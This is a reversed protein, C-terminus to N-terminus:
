GPNCGSKNPIGREQSFSFRSVKIHIDGRCGKNPWTYSLKQEGHCKNWNKGTKFAKLMSASTYNQSKIENSTHRNPELSIGPLIGLKQGWEDEQCEIPQVVPSHFFGEPWPIYFATRENTRENIREHKRANTSENTCAHTRQNTRAQTWENTRENKWKKGAICIFYSYKRRAWMWRCIAWLM